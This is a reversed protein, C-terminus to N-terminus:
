CTSLLYIHKQFTVIQCHFSLTFTEAIPMGSSLFKGLQEQGFAAIWSAEIGAATKM